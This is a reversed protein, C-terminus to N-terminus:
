PASRRRIQTRCEVWGFPGAGPDRRFNLAPAEPPGSLHSTDTPPLTVPAEAYPETLNDEGPRKKREGEAFVSLAVM